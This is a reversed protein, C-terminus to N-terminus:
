MSLASSHQKHMAAELQLHLVLNCKQAVWFGILLLFDAQILEYVVLANCDTLLCLM